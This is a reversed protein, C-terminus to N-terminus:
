VALRRYATHFGARAEWSQSGSGAPKLPALQTNEILEGTKMDLSEIYRGNAENGYVIIRGSEEAVIVSNSYKSAGVPGLARLKTKWLQKGTSLDVALISCGSRHQHYDAIYMVSRLRIFTTQDHAEYTFVEKHDVLIRLVVTRRPAFVLEFEQERLYEQICYLISCQSEDWQWAPQSSTGSSSPTSTGLRHTCGLAILAASTILFKYM